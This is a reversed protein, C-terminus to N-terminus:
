LRKMVTLRVSIQLLRCFLHHIVSVVLGVASPHRSTTKRSSFTTHVNDSVRGSFRVVSVVESPVWQVEHPVYTITSVLSVSGYPPTTHTVITDLTWTVLNCFVYRITDYLGTFSKSNLAVRVLSCHTHSLIRIIDMADYNSLQTRRTITHTSKSARAAFRISHHLFIRFATEVRCTACVCILHFHASICRM